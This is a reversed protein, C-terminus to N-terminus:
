SPIFHDFRAVVECPQYTGYFGWRAKYHNVDAMFLTRSADQDSVRRADFVPVYTLLRESSRDNSLM